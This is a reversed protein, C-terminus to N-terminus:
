RAAFLKKANVPGVVPLTLSSQGQYSLYWGLCAGSTCPADYAKPLVWENAETQVILGIRHGARFIYDQPKALITSTFPKGAPQRVQKALSAAYRTDLFGRTVAVHGESEDTTGDPNRLEPDIDMVSPTLTLWERGTNTTLRIKPEGFFRVDQALPPTEFYLYNAGPPPSTDHAAGSETGTGTIQVVASSGRKTPRTPTLVGGSDAYLTVPSIRPPGSAVFDVPGRRDSVHSTVAALRRDIGNRDGKLWRDMWLHVTDQYEGGPVGHNDWRHGMYLYRHKTRTLARWLNVAEEQKVNWDGWNHSILVPIRINAADKVYDRELWFENYDPSDLDYGGQLHQVEECPTMASATREAWRPNEPDTPPTGGFGLDFGIPTDFGQEDIVLGNTPGQRGLKENNVVYRMGGSYAYSYWRSIAAEPVITTLHPPRMTATATATTGDYSGGIMGMKGTSWGQKAIWEVLDFGTEKERKGGYDYCGGSNATGVVDATMRAYGRVTWRGSDGNRGFAANYPSYTLIGPAKVVKGDLTPHVVELFLDGHRTPVIYATPASAGYAPEEAEAGAHLLGAVLSLAVIPLARLRLSM